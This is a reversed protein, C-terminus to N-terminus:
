RKMAITYVPKRERACRESDKSCQIRLNGWRENARFRDYADVAAAAEPRKLATLAQAQQRLLDPDRPALALGKAAAALEGAHDNVNGLVRAYIAWAQSNLPARETCAKAPAVAEKWRHARMFADVLVADLVPPNPPPNGTGAAAEALFARAKAVHAVSEDPRGQKGAVWALQAYIMARAKADPAAALAAELVVRAEGQREAVTAVLAMGHEYLREWAPRSGRTAGEGLEVRAQAILTIPQAKCPDLAVTRAGRAGAIFAQGEATKAERCVADQM